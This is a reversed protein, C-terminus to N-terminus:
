FIPLCLLVALFICLINSLFLLGVSLALKQLSMRDFYKVVLSSGIALTLNIVIYFASWIYYKSPLTELVLLLSVLALAALAQYANAILGRYISRYAYQDALGSVGRARNETLNRLSIEYSIFM